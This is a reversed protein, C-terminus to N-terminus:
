QAKGQGGHGYLKSVHQKAQRKIHKRLPTIANIENKLREMEQELETIKQRLQLNDKESSATRNTLLRLEETAPFPLVPESGLFVKAYDFYGKRFASEKALYYDNLGDNFVLEYGAQILMDRWDQLVHNAEICLLEPRFKVWDNGKIVAYEYGEVDIKMFHIHRVKRLRLDEKLTVIDVNQDVYDATDVSEHEEYEKVMKKSLTSIGELGDQSHFIRMMLSGKKDGVGARVNTDGARHQSLQDYLKQNPEYNIGRWGKDYFLKTVSHFHPHNAGVDVYFGKKVDPFFADIIIDERNQAFSIRYTM